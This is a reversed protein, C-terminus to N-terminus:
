IIRPIFFSKTRGQGHVGKPNKLLTPVAGLPGHQFNIPAIATVSTQLSKCETLHPDLISFTRFVRFLGTEAASGFTM